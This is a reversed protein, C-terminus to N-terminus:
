GQSEIGLDKKLGVPWGDVVERTIQAMRRRMYRASWYIAWCILCSGILLVLISLLNATANIPCDKQL